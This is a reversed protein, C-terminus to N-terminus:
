ASSASPSFTATSEDAVEEHTDDLGAAVVVDVGEVVQHGDDPIRATGFGVQAGPHWPAKAGGEIMGRKKGM